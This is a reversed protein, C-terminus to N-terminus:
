AYAQFPGLETDVKWDNWQPLRAQLFHDSFLGRNQFWKGTQRAMLYGLGVRLKVSM